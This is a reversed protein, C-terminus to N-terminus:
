LACILAAIFGTRENFVRRGILYVLVCTGALLLCQAILVLTSQDGFLSYIGGIMLPYLPARRQILTGFPAFGQGHAISKGMEGFYYPDFTTDVLTQLRFGVFVMGLGVALALLFILLSSRALRRSTDPSIQTRRAAASLEITM